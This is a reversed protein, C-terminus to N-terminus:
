FDGKKTDFSYQPQYGFTEQAKRISLLTARGKISSDPIVMINPRFRRFIETTPEPCRTDAACLTYIGTTPLNVKELAQRLGRVIDLVHVWQYLDDSWATTPKLGAALYQRYMKDSWISAFRFAATTIGYARSFAACTEENVYKSLSYPDEPISKFDEDLPLKQYNVFKGSLRWYFTGFANISSACLFRKVKAQCCADLLIYTGCANIHFTECGYEPLGTLSAALHIVADMGQVAKRIVVKDTIDAQICPWNTKFPVCRRKTSGPEFASANEPKERDLLWLQHEKELEAVLERGVMGFAGTILIKM